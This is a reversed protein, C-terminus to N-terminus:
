LPLSGTHRVDWQSCCCCYYYSSKGLGISSLLTARTELQAGSARARAVVDCRGCTKRPTSCISCSYIYTYISTARALFLNSEVSRIYSPASSQTMSSHPCTCIYTHKSSLWGTACDVSLYRIWSLIYIAVERRNETYLSIYIHVFRTAPLFCFYKKREPNYRVNYHITTQHTFFLDKPENRM